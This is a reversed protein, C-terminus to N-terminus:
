IGLLVEPMYRVYLHEASLTLSSNQGGAPTDGDYLFTFAVPYEGVSSGVYQLLARDMNELDAGISRYFADQNVFKFKNVSYTKGSVIAALLHNLMYNNTYPNLLGVMNSEFEPAKVGKAELL